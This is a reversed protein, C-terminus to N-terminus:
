SQNQRLQLRKQRELISPREAAFSQFVQFLEPQRTRVEATMCLALQDLGKIITAGVDEPTADSPNKMVRAFMKPDDKPEGTEPDVAGNAKDDEIGPVKGELADIVGKGEAAALSALGRTLDGFGAEALHKKTVNVDMVEKLHNMDPKGKKNWHDDNAPDLAAVAEKLKDIDIKKDFM